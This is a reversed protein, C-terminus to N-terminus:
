WMAFMVTAVFYMPASLVYLVALMMAVRHTRQLWPRHAWSRSWSAVVGALGVTGIAIGTFGIATMLRGGGRIGLTAFILGGFMTVAPTAVALFTGLAALARELARGLRTSGAERLRQEKREAAASVTAALDPVEDM